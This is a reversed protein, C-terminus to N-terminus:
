NILLLLLSVQIMTVYLTTDFVRFSLFGHHQKCAITIEECYVRRGGCCDIYYKKKIYSQHVFSWFADVILYWFSM